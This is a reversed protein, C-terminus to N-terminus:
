STHNIELAKEYLKSETVLSKNNKNKELYDLMTLAMQETELPCLVGLMIEKDNGFIEEIIDCIKFRIEKM